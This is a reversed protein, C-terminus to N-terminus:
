KSTIHQCVVGFVNLNLTMQHIEKSVIALAFSSSRVADASQLNHSSLCL